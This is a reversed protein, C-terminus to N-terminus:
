TRNPKLWHSNFPFLVFIATGISVKSDISFEGNLLETRNRMSRIGIGTNNNNLNFGIGDDEISLSITDEYQFLEILVTRAKAYKIINALAEQSIRYINLGLEDNLLLDFNYTRFDIKIDYQHNIRQIMSTISVILGFKELDMPMLNHSIQRVQDYANGILDRAECLVSNEKMGSGNLNTLKSHSIALLGGLGDHMEKALRERETEQGKMLSELAVIEKGKELLKIKDSAIKLNKKQIISNKKHNQRLYYYFAGFALIGFCLLFITQVLAKERKEASVKENSLTLIEMEKKESEYKEQLETVATIRSENLLSDNLDTYKKYYSLAKQHENTHEYIESAAFLVPLYSEKNNLEEAIDLSSKIYAKALEYNQLQMHVQGLSYLEKTVDSSELYKEAIELAKQMYVIAKKYKKQLNYLEGLNYYNVNLRYYNDEKKALEVNELLLKEAESDRQQVVYFAALNTRVSSGLKQDNFKKDHDLALLFYKEALTTDKMRHYVIGIKNYISAKLTDAKVSDALRLGSFFAEQAKDRKGLFVYAMGSTVYAGIHEEYELVDYQLQLAKKSLELSEEYKHQCLKVESMYKYYNFLKQNIIGENVFSKAKLMYSEAKAPDERCIKKSLKILIRFREDVGATEFGCLLSDAASKSLEYQNSIVTHSISLFLVILLTQKTLNM